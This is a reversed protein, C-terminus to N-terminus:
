INYVNILKGRLRREELSHLGLERRREKHSLHELDKIIRTSRRQVQELLEMDRKYQLAWFQVRYKLQPRVLESYLPLIVERLRSIISM